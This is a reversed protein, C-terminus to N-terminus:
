LNFLGDEDEPWWNRDLTLKWSYAPTFLATITGTNKDIQVEGCVDSSAGENDILGLSYVNDREEVDSTVQWDDM